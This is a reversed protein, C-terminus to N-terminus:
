FSHVAVLAVRGRVAEGEGLEDKERLNKFEVDYISYSVAMENKVETM